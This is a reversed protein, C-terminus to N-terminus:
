KPAEELYKSLMEWAFEDALMYRKLGEGLSPIRIAHYDREYHAALEDTKADFVVVGRCGNDISYKIGFAILLQGIGFYKRDDRPHMTPNSHPASEAYVLIVHTKRDQIQYAGLAILEGSETTVSYKDISPDSLYDSAWDSQWKPDAHVTDIQAFNAPEIQVPVRNKTSILSVYPSFIYKM